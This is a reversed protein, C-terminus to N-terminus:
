PKGKPRPAVPGKGLKAEGVPLGPRWGPPAAETIGLKLPDAFARAELAGALAREIYVRRTQGLEAARADVRALLEADIRGVQQVPRAM